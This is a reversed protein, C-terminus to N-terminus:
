NYVLSYLVIDQDEYTNKLIKAQQLFSYRWYDDIKLLMIHSIHHNQLFNTMNDISNLGQVIQFVFKDWEGQETELLYVNDLNRGVRLDASFFGKAPNAVRKNGAFNLHPYGHWPLVLVTKAENKVLINEVKEWGDPYNYTQLQHSFSNFIGFTALFALLWAMSLLIYKYIFFSKHERKLGCLDFIYAFGLPILFAYIFAILGVLKETERLGKFGPLIVFLLDISPRVIDAGYGVALFVLPGFSFALFLALFRNRKVLNLYGLWSLFLFFITLLWWASFLDKPLFNATSWFGYLSLVNFFVGFVADGQTKFAVFDSLGIKPFVGGDSWFSFLWFSNVAVITGLIILLYKWWLFTLLIKWKKYYLLYFLGSFFLVLYSIYAWHISFIPYLSLLLTLKIFKQWSYSSLLELFLGFVLPFIAYGLLVLYHGALFREYVWPNLMYFGGAVLAWEQAIKNIRAFYYMFSGISLFLVTLLIKQIFVLPLFSSLIKFVVILPFSASIGASLYDSLQLHPSWVMDLLFLFGGGFFPRMILLALCTYLIYVLYKKM